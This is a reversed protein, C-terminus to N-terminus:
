ASKKALAAARLGANARSRHEPSFVRGKMAASTKARQEDSIIRARRRLSLLARTEASRKTGRNKAATKAIAEQSRRLGTRSLASKRRQYDSQITGIKAQSIARCWEDSRPPRKRGKHFNSIKRRAEETHHRGKMPNRVDTGINMLLADGREARFAAIRTREVTELDADVCECLVDFRFADAGYKNYSAQLIPNRHVGTRLSRRHEEWRHRISVSQGVYVRGSPVCTILYIGSVRKYAM